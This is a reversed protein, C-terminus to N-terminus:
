TALRVALAIGAVSAGAGLARAAPALRAGAARALGFGAAHLLATAAILGAGAAWAAGDLEAGHALGHFVGFAACLAAGAGWPLGGALAAALGFVLLSAAIAHEASAFAIGTLGAGLGVAASLAFAVPLAAARALGRREGVRAAWVGVVLMALLHDIGAFPHAFAATFSDAHGAHALAAGPLAAVLAPLALRNRPM